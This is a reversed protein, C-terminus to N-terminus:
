SIGYDCVASLGTADHSLAVFCDHSVQFVFLNFCGAREIEVYFDSTRMNILVWTCWLCTIYAGNDLLIILILSDFM